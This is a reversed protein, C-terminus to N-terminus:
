QRQLSSTNSGIASCGVNDKGLDDYGIQGLLYQLNKFAVEPKDQPIMHGSDIVSIFTLGRESHYTGADRGGVRLVGNPKFHFGRSGGWTMNQIALASGNALLVFDNLGHQILSRESQEIVGPLVSVDPSPDHPTSAFASGCAVWTHNPAHILQKFGPIENFINKTSVQETSPDFGLADDIVVSEKVNYVNFYGSFIGLCEYYIDIWPSYVDSTFPAAIGEKLAPYVLNREVYDYAGMKKAKSYFQDLFNDSLGLEKHWTQVFPVIAADEGLFQSTFSPDNISIGKLKIGSADSADKQNYIYDAMYPIYEGAASEGTVWLNKGKNEPFIDYFNQLFSFFEAAVDRYSKADITGTTFGTGIPQEVWVVSALKNFSYPNLKVYPQDPKGTVNEPFLVPGNEELMGTLSSCGPGGNLWVVLDNKSGCGEEEKFYWFFQDNKTSSNGNVEKIPVLGAWSEPVEFPVTPWRTGVYYDDASPIDYSPAAYLVHCILTFLAFYLRSM